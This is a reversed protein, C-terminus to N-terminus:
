YPKIHPRSVIGNIIVHEFVHLLIFFVNYYYNLRSFLCQTGAFEYFNTKLKKHFGKLLFKPVEYNITEAGYNCM